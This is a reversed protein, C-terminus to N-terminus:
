KKGKAEALYEESLTPNADKDSSKEIVEGIYHNLIFGICRDFDIHGSDVGHLSQSQISNM